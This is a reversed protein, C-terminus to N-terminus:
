TATDYRRPFFWIENYPVTLHWTTRAGAPLSAMEGVALELTPGGAIEVRVSGELVVLTERVPLTWEVPGPDKTYRTMGAYADSEGVLVHMEGGVDPDPEWETANVRSVFVGEHIEM